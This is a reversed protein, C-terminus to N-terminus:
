RLERLPTFTGVTRRQCRWREGTEYREFATANAPDDSYTKTADGADVFDVVYAAVQKTRHTENTPGLDAWTMTKLSLGHVTQSAQAVWKFYDYACWPRYVPCQHYCTSYVPARSPAM